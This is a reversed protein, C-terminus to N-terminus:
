LPLLRTFSQQLLSAQLFSGVVRVATCGPVSTLTNVIVCHMPCVWRNFHARPGRSRWACQLRLAAAPLSHQQWHDRLYGALEANTAADAAAWEDATPTAKRKSNRRHAHDDAIASRLGTIFYASSHSQVNSATATTNPLANSGASGGTGSALTRTLSSAATRQGLAEKLINAPHQKLRTAEPAHSAAMSMYRDLLPVVAGRKSGTGTICSTSAAGAGAAAGASTQQTNVQGCTFITATEKNCDMENNSLKATAAPTAHHGDTAQGPTQEAAHRLMNSLSKKLTHRTGSVRSSTPKFALKQKAMDWSAAQQNAQMQRRSAAASDAHHRQRALQLEQEQQLQHRWAPVHAAHAQEVKLEETAAAAGVLLSYQASQETALEFQLSKCQLLSNEHTSSQASDGAQDAASMVSSTSSRGFTEYHGSQETPTAHQGAVDEPGHANQQNPVSETSASTPGSQSVDLLQQSLASTPTHQEERRYHLRAELAQM